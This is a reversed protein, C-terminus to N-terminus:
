EEVTGKDSNFTRLWRNRLFVKERDTTTKIDYLAGEWNGYMPNPLVIYNSGFAAQAREAHELRELQNTSEFDHHFDALNDGLLLVIEYVGNTLLPGRRDDKSEKNTRLLVHQDDAFPLGQQQLNTITQLTQFAKRNSVYFVEVKKSAAYYLLNSIGPLPNARAFNVWNTWTTETYTQGRRALGAQYPSNDLITEDIDVIIASPRSHTKRALHQDLRERAINCAQHYLARCEAARQYWLVALLSQEALTETARSQCNTDASPASSASSMRATQCGTLAISAAIFTLAALSLGWSRLARWKYGHVARLWHLAATTASGAAARQLNLAAAAPAECVAASRNM